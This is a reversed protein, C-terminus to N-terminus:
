GHGEFGMVLAMISAPKRVEICIREDTSIGGGSPNVPEPKDPGIVIDSTVPVGSRARPLAYLPHLPNDFETGYRIGSRCYDGLLIGVSAIVKNKLMSTSPGSAYELKASKYRGVYPLGACGGTVPAFPLTITGTESVVFEIPNGSADEIYQGDVWAWVSRGVLHTFGGLVASGAGFVRHADLCKTITAPRAESDLALREIRRSTVGNVTRKISCLVRDQGNEAPLNIMSEIIDTGIGTSIPVYAVVQQAPEFVILMPDANNVTIWIRQDPRNQVTMGSVGNAFPDTTLKSFESALFRAKTADYNLEYVASGASEVFLLRDDALLAPNVRAAGVRGGGTRRIGFNDPTLVEGLSSARVSAILRGCGVTLTSLPALWRAGNRGGLAIARLLPGAEGVFDEDFSEFADSVSGWFQDYGAFNLRGDNLSVATPWGVNESWAGERWDQTFSTDMFPKLVDIVVETPSNFGVVRAIGYGGGGKYTIQIRAAGSTYTGPEFGLKYYAIANDENDDNTGSENTTIDTVSSAQAKRFRHFEIDEGDFSRQFRLTGAWTGSVTWSFARENYDPENIGTVMITPTFENDAALYTDIKQGDHYIRFLAGIHDQTFFPLDSQLLGGGELVTPRIRVEATRGILFPGDDADYDCVSWSRNGRSEIRQQKRGECALFLVDLSQDYRVYQLDDEAWITPLVMPGAAEVNIDNVYVSHLTETSFEIWFNGAPVIAISHYGTRLVTEKVIDQAGATTGVRFRVPGRFITSRLGHIKGVDGPAVTVQQRAYAKAGRGFAQLRLAGGSISAVTGAATGLTWGTASDFGGSTIATAVAPRSVVNVDEWVRLANPTLELGYVLSEGADFDILRAKNGGNTLGFHETGPRLFAPGEAMPILNTQQESALRMRELDVRHLKDKDVIGVNLAQYFYENPM